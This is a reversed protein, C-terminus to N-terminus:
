KLVENINDLIDYKDSYSNENPTNDIHERCEKLLQLLQEIQEGQKAMTDIYDSREDKIRQLEEYDCPALVEWYGFNLTAHLESSFLDRGNWMAITTIKEEDDRCFYSQNYKLREAKWDDTLSM